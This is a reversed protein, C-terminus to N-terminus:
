QYCIIVRLQCVTRPCICSLRSFFDRYRLFVPLITGHSSDGGDNNCTTKLEFYLPRLAATEFVRVIPLISAVFSFERERFEGNERRPAINRQEPNAGPKGYM